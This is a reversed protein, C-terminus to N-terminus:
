PPSRDVPLTQEPLPITAGRSDPLPSLGSGPPRTEALNSSVPPASASVRAKSSSGWISTPITIPLTLTDGIASLPVDLGVLGVGVVAGIDQQWDPNSSPTWSHAFWDEASQVDRRVGGYIQANKWGDRAGVSLNAVTGCGSLFSAVIVLVAACSARGM